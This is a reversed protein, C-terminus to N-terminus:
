SDEAGSNRSCQFSKASFRTSIACNKRCDRPMAFTTHLTLKPPHSDLFIIQSSQVDRVSETFSKEGNRRIVDLRQKAKRYGVVWRLEVM